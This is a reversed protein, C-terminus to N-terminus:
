PMMDPLKPQHEPFIHKNLKRGDATAPDLLNSDNTTTTSKPAYSLVGGLGLLAAISAALTLRGRSAVPGRQRAIEVTLPAEPWTRPVQAQFYGQLLSDLDNPKATSRNM